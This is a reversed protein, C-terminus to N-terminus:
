LELVMRIHEIGADMFIGGEEIFGFKRYLGTAVTQSDLHIARAGQVRAHEITLAILQRAIGRGRLSAKVALRGFKASDDGFVLRATGVVEGAELAVFHVAARDDDDLELEVPVKQEDVYVKLRLAVVAPWIPSDYHTTFCETM